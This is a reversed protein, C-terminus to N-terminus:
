KAVETIGSLLKVITSRQNRPLIECLYDLQGEGFGMGDGHHIKVLLGIHERPQGSFYRVLMGPKIEKDM